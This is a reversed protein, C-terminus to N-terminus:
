LNIEGTKQNVSENFFVFKNSTNISKDISWVEGWM